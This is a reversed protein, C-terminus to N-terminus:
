RRNALATTGASQFRTRLTNTFHPRCTDSWATQRVKLWANSGLVDLSELDYCALSRPGTDFNLYRRARICGPVASLGPLHEEAYWRGIEDSWGPAPDTEVAYYALAVQGHSHGPRDLALELRAMSDGPRAVSRWASQLQERERATLAVPSNLSLLIHAMPQGNEASPTFAWTVERLGLDLLGSRSLTGALTDSVPAIASRILLAGVM